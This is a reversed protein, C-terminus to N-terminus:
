GKAEEIVTAEAAEEATEQIFAESIKVVLQEPDTHVTVGEGLYIDKVMISQDVEELSSLDVEVRPPVSGPLCEISLSTVGHTMMRGKSKMAPAEGVLVLPVEVAIKEGATVQYFDVHFLMKSVEDRQIEKTMVSRKGKEKEVALSIIRTMGARAIVQQLEDTDCQLSLSDINHGFVHVPTIGQRRLFRTKKRMVSRRNAKLKLEEV